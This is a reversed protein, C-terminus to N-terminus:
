GNMLAVAVIAAVGVVIDIVVCAEAYLRSWWTRATSCCTGCPTFPPRPPNHPYDYYQRMSSGISGTAWYLTVTTLIADLDFRTALDGDCDSWDRL